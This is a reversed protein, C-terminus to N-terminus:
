PLLIRHVRLAWKWCVLGWPCISFCGPSICSALVANKLALLSGSTLISVLTLSPILNWWAAFPRLKFINRGLVVQLTQVCFPQLIFFSGITQAPYPVRALARSISLFVISDVVFSPTFKSPTLPTLVGAWSPGQDLQYICLCKQFDDQFPLFFTHVLCASRCNVWASVFFSSFISLILDFSLLSFGGRLQFTPPYLFLIEMFVLPHSFLSFCFCYISTFYGLPLALLSLM